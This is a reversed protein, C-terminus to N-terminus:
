LREAPEGRRDSAAAELPIDVMEEYALKRAFCHLRYRLAAPRPTLEQEIYKATTEFAQIAAKNAIEFDQM